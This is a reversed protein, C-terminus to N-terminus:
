RAASAPEGLEHVLAATLVDTVTPDSTTLTIALVADDVIRLSTQPWYTQAQDYAKHFTSPRLVAWEITSSSGDDTTFTLTVRGVSPCTNADPFEQFDALVGHHDCSTCRAPSGPSYDHDGHADTGDETFRAWVTAAVDVDYHGRCKPCRITMDQLFGRPWDLVEHRTHDLTVAPTADPTTPTM